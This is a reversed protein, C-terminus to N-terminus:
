DVWESNLFSIEWVQSMKVKRWTILDDKVQERYNGTILEFSYKSGNFLITHTTAGHKKLLM